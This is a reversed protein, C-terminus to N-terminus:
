PIVFLTGMSAVIPAKATAIENKLYKRDLINIFREVGSGKIGCGILEPPVTGLDAALTTRGDPTLSADSGYAKVSM